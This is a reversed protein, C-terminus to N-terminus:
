QYKPQNAPNMVWGFKGKWANKPTPHALNNDYVMGDKLLVAHASPKGNVEVFVYWVDGGIQNQLSFAFDECDGSFKESVSDYIKWEDVKDAEYVFNNKATYFMNEETSACGVVGLLNLSILVLKVFTKM